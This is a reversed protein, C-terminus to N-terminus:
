LSWGNQKLEATSRKWMEILLESPKVEIESGAKACAMGATKTWPGEAEYILTPDADATALLQQGDIARALVAHKEAKGDRGACRAIFYDGIVDALVYGAVSDVPFHVGAIVRNDSIRRALLKLQEDMPSAVGQGTLACIIKRFMYAETAHGMPWAGYAPTLIIPQIMPSYENPRPCALLHKLRQCVMMVFHLAIYTVEITRPTTDPHLGVIGTWYAYQPVVQSLIEPTREPRLRARRMVLELQTKFVDISPRTFGALNVPKGDASHTNVLATDSGAAAYSLGSLLEAIAL